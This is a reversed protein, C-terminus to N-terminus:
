NQWHTCLSHSQSGQWFAHGKGSSQPPSTGCPIRVLSCDQRQSTCGDWTRCPISRCAEEERGQKWERELCVDEPKKGKFIIVCSGAAPIICIAQYYGPSLSDPTWVGAGLLLSAWPALEWECGASLLLLFCAVWERGAESRCATQNPGLVSQKKSMMKWSKRHVFSHLTM